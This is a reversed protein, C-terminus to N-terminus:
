RGGILGADLRDCRGRRLGDTPKRRHVRMQKQDLVVARDALHGRQRELPGAEADGGAPISRLRQPQERLPEVRELYRFDTLFVGGGPGIVVAGNSGTYGTLYRVNVLNTVLLAEVGLAPLGEALRELRAAHNM